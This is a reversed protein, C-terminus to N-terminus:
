AWDERQQWGILFGSLFGVSTVVAVLVVIPGAPYVKQVTVPASQQSRSTHVTDHYRRAYTNNQM